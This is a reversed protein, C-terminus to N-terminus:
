RVRPELASIVWFMVCLEMYSWVKKVRSASLDVTKPIDHEGSGLPAVGKHSLLGKM